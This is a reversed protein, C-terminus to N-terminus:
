WASMSGLAIPRPSSTDTSTSSESFSRLVTSANSSCIPANSSTSSHRRM